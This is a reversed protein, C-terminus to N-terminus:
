EELYEWVQGSVITTWFMPVRSKILTLEEATLDIIGDECDRCRCAIKYRRLKEEGKIEEGNREGLLADILVRRVTLEEQDELRNDDTMIPQGTFLLLKKNLDKKM